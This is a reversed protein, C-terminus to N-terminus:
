AYPDAPHIVDLKNFNSYNYTIAVNSGDTGGGSTDTSTLRNKDGLDFVTGDELNIVIPENSINNADPDANIGDGVFAGGATVGISCTVETPFTAYRYYPSKRGLEFLDDRGLSVSISIDQLHVDFESDGTNYGVNGVVTMGPIETPFRSGGAAADGLKVHQRRLIEGFAPEDGGNFHGQFLFNGTSWVKSNGVLEVDETFNGDVPLNYAVSNVYMGSCVLQAVPTGSSSTQDDKFYSAVVNCRSNSRNILTNTTAEPTALHYLLPYGDLAKTASVSVQPLAEIVAYDELQGLELVREVDFTTNMTMDQVGHVPVYDAATTSGHPGIALYQLPYIVRKNAM